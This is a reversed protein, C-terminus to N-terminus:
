AYSTVPKTAKSQREAIDKLWTELKGIEEFLNDHTVNEPNLTEASAHLDESLRGRASTVTKVDDEILVALKFLSTGRIQNDFRGIVPQIFDAIGQDWAERLQEIFGKCFLVRDTEPMTDFQTKKAKLAQRLSHALGSASKAKMPLEGKVFGPKATRREVTQYHLPCTKAEAERKLEFLFTLDHTFVVVQRHAAEEVLRAAVAKRHIHDLSSMPDDFVIGSYRKATVLEALFAALAVCRHEGESFIDGVAKTPNEVLCVQFYSVADKDKIKRLEVPMRSLKLKDIERAFRGRLANSVLKDSMEKNKTTIPKKATDKIAKAIEDATQRRAIEAKLDDVLPILAARDKLESHEKMLTLYEPSQQDATLQSARKSLAASLAGLEADPLDMSAAPMTGGKLLARHRWCVSACFAKLKNALDADGIESRIMGDLRAVESQLFLAKKKNALWTKHHASATAEDAKTTGKVFTEFTTLRQVADTGLPQQCLVCLDDSAEQPFKKDPYAVENSYKRAAEWLAIWVAQGIQPLPSAAFLDKSAARAADAKATWDAHIKDREAFSSASAVTGLTKLKVIYEDLRTRQNVLKAAAVKPDQALDSDLAALRQQEAQSLSALLDLQAVNSKASLHHVFAGAATDSKLKPTKISLPTQIALEVVKAELKEKVSDCAGALLELIKMPRPIYAVANTKEVHINASRSDFISVSPLDPHGDGGPTWSFTEELTGRSLVISATQPTAVTDEIDRLIGTEGDRTRCANKLVRVYGSKGSGNDGYIITLGSKAFELKQGKAIANIGTPNEIRVLSIPDGTVGAGGVHDKTIANSPLKSDLCIEALQTIDTDTLAENLVIRRLADRQWVPREAAWDVLEALADGETVIEEATDSM